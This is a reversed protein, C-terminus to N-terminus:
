NNTIQLHEHNKINQFCLSDLISRSKFLKGYKSFRQKLSNIAQDHVVNRVNIRFRDNVNQIPNYSNIERDMKKEIVFEM